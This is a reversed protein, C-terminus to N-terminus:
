RDFNVQYLNKESHNEVLLAIRQDNRQNVYVFSFRLKDERMQWRTDNGFHMTRYNYGVRNGIRMTKNGNGHNFSELDVKLIAELAFSFFISVLCTLKILVKLFHEKQSSKLLM